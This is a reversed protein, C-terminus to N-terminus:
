NEAWRTGAPPSFRFAGPDEQAPRPDKLRLVQRAGTADTWQFREPWPGRGEAELTPLGPEKPTLTVRDGQFTVKFHRAVDRPDMLVTLLPAESLARKLDLRQASRTDPDYQILKRGDCVILLGRTYAVRLRGGPALRLSGERSVKGFVASDGEQVFTSQLSPRTQLRTWWAPAQASLVLAGGLLIPLLRRM